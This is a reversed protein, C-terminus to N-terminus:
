YYLHMQAFTNMYNGNIKQPIDEGKRIGARIQLNAFPTYELLLSHRIRQNENIHTDPDLYETTLKLNIGKSVERNVELFIIRQQEHTGPIHSISKDNIHDVEALFIFGLWNFGGFMNVQYRAGLDADNYVGSVGARWNDGLYEVRSLYSLGKDNNTLGSAGNSIAASIFVHTTQVDWEVGNDSNNFNFGTAQRIFATDDELRIGYPLILKGAKIFSTNSLKTLIFAERNLASGPALQEDIYLSFRSDNPQLILYVHGSQTEFTQTDEGHKLYTQSYNARFNAGLRLSETINGADFQTLSGATQPLVNTGYYAGYANRAGGGIPNIHCGSCFMNNKFALYPEAWAPAGCCIIMVFFFGLLIKNIHLNM